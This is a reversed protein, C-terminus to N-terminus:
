FVRNNCRTTLRAVKRVIDSLALKRLRLIAAVQSARERYLRDCM